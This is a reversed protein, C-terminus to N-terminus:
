AYQTGPHGPVLTTGRHNTGTDKYVCPNKEYQLWDTYVQLAGNEYLVVFHLGCTYANASSSLFKVGRGQRFFFSLLHFVCLNFLQSLESGLADVFCLVILGQIVETDPEKSLLTLNCGEKFGHLIKGRLLPRRKALHDIAKASLHFTREIVVHCFKGVSCLFCLHLRLGEIHRQRRLLHLITMCMRIGTRKFLNLTDEDTHTILNYLTRLNLVVIIIESLEIDRLAM